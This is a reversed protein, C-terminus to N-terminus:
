FVQEKWCRLRNSVVHNFVLGELSFQRIPRIALSEWCQKGLCIGRVQSKFIQSKFANTIRLSDMSWWKRVGESWLRFLTRGSCRFPLRWCCSGLFKAFRRRLPNRFRASLSPLQNWCWSSSYCISLSALSLRWLSFVPDLHSYRLSREQEPLWRSPM